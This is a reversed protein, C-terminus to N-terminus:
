LDRFRNYCLILNSRSPTIKFSNCSMPFQNAPRCQRCSYIRFTNTTQHQIGLSIPLYDFQRVPTHQRLHFSRFLGFQHQCYLLQAPTSFRALPIDHELQLIFVIRCTAMYCLIIVFVSLVLNDGQLLMFNTVPNIQYKQSVTITSQINRFPIIHCHYLLLYFTEKIYFRIPCISIIEINVRPDCNGWFTTDTCYIRNSVRFELCRVRSPNTQSTIIISDKSVGQVHRRHIFPIQIM